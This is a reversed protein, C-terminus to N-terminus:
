NTTVATGIAIAIMVVSLLIVTRQGRIGYPFEPQTLGLGALVVAWVTLLGGGIYFPTKSIEAAALVTALM